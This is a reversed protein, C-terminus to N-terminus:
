RSAAAALMGVKPTPTESFLVVVSRAETPYTSKSLSPASEWPVIDAPSDLSTDIWRRWPGGGEVTPLEFDLPEWYANLILHVLIRDGALETTFALTRSCPRWDPQYLKVGHWAKTAKRIMENLSVREREHEVDRLLRRANLLKV